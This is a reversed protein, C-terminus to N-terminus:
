YEGIVNKVAASIGVNLHLIIEKVLGQKQKEVTVYGTTDKSDNM